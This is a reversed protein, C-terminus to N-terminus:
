RPKSLAVMGLAAVGILMVAGSGESQLQKSVIAPVDTGTVVIFDGSAGLHGSLKLEYTHIGPALLTAYSTKAGTLSGDIYIDAGMPITEFIVLGSDVVEPQLVINLNTTTNPVITISGMAMSYGALGAEYANVIAPVDTLLIPATDNEGTYLGFEVGDPVSTVDLSGTTTPIILPEMVVFEGTTEGPGINITSFTYDVYGPLKIIVEHDVGPIVDSIIASSNMGTNNGDYWISAGPPISVVIIKGPTEQLITEVSTSVCQELPGNGVKAVVNYTGPPAGTTDIDVTCQGGPPSAVCSGFRMSMGTEIFEIISPETVTATASATIMDGINAIIPSPNNIVIGTCSSTDSILAVKLPDSTCTSPSLVDATLDYLNPTQGTTDLTFSAEGNPDTDIPTSNVPYGDMNFNISYVNPPDIRASLTVTQGVKATLSDSNVTATCQMSKIQRNELQSQFYTKKNRKFINFRNDKPVM